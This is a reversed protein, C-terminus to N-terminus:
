DESPRFDKVTWGLANRGNWTDVEVAFVIDLKQGGYTDAVKPGLRFAKALINQTSGQSLYLMPHDPNRTPKVGELTVGKALFIPDRNGEGFPALLALQEASPFDIEDLRMEATLQMEPVLAEDNLVREAHELLLRRAQEFSDAHVSMGAAKAHGGGDMVEPHSKIAEALNFGPISRASGKFIGTEPDLSLVFVPRHYHDRLRGAVIGVIGPHWGEKGVVILSDNGHGAAEILEIAEKIIEEQQERRSKNLAEMERAIPTAENLDDALMLRLALAADDIRGAANLRPSLGFGIDYSTFGRDAKEQLGAEQILAQIGPKKSNSILPLGHRVLTRNEDVIPMVDAVTGLTVLDLFARHFASVPIDLEPCLGQCFKFAVGAGCLNAFPYISDQRHPNIFAHANPHEGVHHHDTVVVTMGHARAAEVEEFASGGCDCTLFLNAGFEVAAQVASQSIGYGEKMRHPVHTKVNMGLRRLFRTLLAASTIGDVDYDGHIYIKHGQEKANLLAKMGAEFDPLLKPDHLTDLSPNLFANAAAPDAYGKAVLAAAIM